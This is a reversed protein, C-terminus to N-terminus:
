LSNVLYINWTFYYHLSNRLVVGLHGFNNNIAQCLIFWSLPLSFCVNTWKFWILSCRLLCSHMATNIAIKKINMITKRRDELLQQWIKGTEGQHFPGRFTNVQWFFAWLFAWIDYVQYLCLNLCVVSSWNMEKVKRETLYQQSKLKSFLCNVQM